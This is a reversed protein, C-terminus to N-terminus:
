GFAGEELVSAVAARLAKVSAGPSADLARNQFAWGALREIAEGTVGLRSAQQALAKLAPRAFVPDRHSQAVDMCDRRSEEGWLPAPLTALLAVVVRAPLAKLEFALREPLQEAFREALRALVAEGSPSLACALMVAVEGTSAEPTVGLRVPVFGQTLWFRLLEADAGFTAGYLDIGREAADRRDAALLAAGLGRRRLEPHTAIRTVRCWRAALAERSGEHAALSQAMLHGHPRREGRAVRECLASDFGGEDRSILVAQPAQPTGLVRLAVNPGDLWQRLDSPSTRYHSQVLLGFLAALAPEDQALTPRKLRVATPTELGRATSLKPLPAKLLLLRNVSGELPDGEAWRIPTTLELAKWDPTQRALVAQFRLAFGRGSGEYGHVTTAFAIRPFAALWQSLRVAPLAAAEDVLLYSGAGGVEGRALAQDLADPALYRLTRGEADFLQSADHGAQPCLASVRAFLSAIARFHPATVIIENVGAAWLRVCAIGLAASKGRGRDATIVLPRRRKLRTLERVARAQDDSLCDADSQSSATPLRQVLRGLRPSTEVDWHTIGPDDRMLRALRMLYHASLASADHPYDALRAYDADPASGLERPTLLLLLGGAALTGALAGLADPDLGSPAFTDIVVLDHEGGLQQRARRLRISPAVLPAESVWLPAQWDNAQWLALAERQCAEREGYLWVLQRWRRRALRKVHALLTSTAKAAM